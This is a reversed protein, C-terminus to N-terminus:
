NRDKCISYALSYYFHHNNGGDQKARYMAVDAREVLSSAELADFPFLSVGISCTVVLSKEGLLHPQSISKKIRQVVTTTDSIKKTEMLIAGFEDGGLRAATDEKRLCGQLREAVEKLLLDGTAHGFCDNVQKFHDLDIYLLALGNKQRKAWDISHHLRDRFLLRNPLGTLPDHTARQKENEWAREWKEVIRNREIAFRLTRVLVHDDVSGKIIFDQAGQQISRFAVSTDSSGTLVVIPVKPVSDHVKLLTGLGHSDPLTLDLLVLDYRRRGLSSLASALNIVHDVNLSEPQLHGLRKRLLYAYDRDDEVM